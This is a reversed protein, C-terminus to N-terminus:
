YEIVLRNHDKIFVFCNPRHQKIWLYMCHMRFSIHSILNKFYFLIFYRLFLDDQDSSWYADTIPIIELLSNNFPTCQSSTLTSYTIRHQWRRFHSKLNCFFFTLHKRIAIHSVSCNWGGRFRFQCSLNFRSFFCLFFLYNMKLCQYYIKNTDTTIYMQPYFLHM